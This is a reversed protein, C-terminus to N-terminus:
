NQICTYITNTLTIHTATAIGSVVGHVLRTWNFLQGTTPHTLIIAGASSAAGRIRQAQVSHLCIVHGHVILTPTHSTPVPLTPDTYVPVILAPNLSMGIHVTPTRNDLLIPAPSFSKDVDTAWDFPTSQHHTMNNKDIQIRIEELVGDEEVKERKERDGETGQQREDNEERSTM